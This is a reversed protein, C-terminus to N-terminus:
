PDLNIEKLVFSLIIIPRNEYEKLPELLVGPEMHQVREADKQPSRHTRPRVM